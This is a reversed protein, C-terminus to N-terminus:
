GTELQDPGLFDWDNPNYPDNTMDGEERSSLVMGERETLEGEFGVCADVDAATDSRGGETGDDDDDDDGLDFIDNGDEADEGM